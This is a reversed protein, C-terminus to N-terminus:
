VRAAYWGHILGAQFFQVPPDFGGDRIIAAVDAPPLVGVDRQYAERMRQLAEATLDAVAMTRFWAELLGQQAPSALDSALDSSALLAGPRLRQAIAHFYGIREDRDLLFQSVLFSTAADFPEGAPLSDLYGHPFTCRDAVGPAAARQRCAALMGASPEVATFTWGPFRDALFQMEAGTGAGVCLVRADAPLKGFVSGVLLLLCERLAALKAWQQDYTASQQDFTSAIQERDM